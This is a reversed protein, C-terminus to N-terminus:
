DLFAEFSFTELNMRQIEDGLCLLHKGDCSMRLGQVSDDVQVRRVVKATQADIVSVKHDDLDLAYLFRGDPRAVLFENGLILNPTFVFTGLTAASFLVSTAIRGALVGTKEGAGMTTVIAEVQLEKLDLLAVKHHSRGNKGSILVAAHDEGLAITEGPFGDLFASAGGEDGKDARGPQSFQIRRDGLEGTESLSRMEQNGLVWPEQNPGLRVLRTPQGTLAHSVTTGKEIDVVLLSAATHKDGEIAAFLLKQDRSQMTARPRGALKITFVPLASRGSFVLFQDNVPKPEHFTEQFAAYRVILDGQDTAALFQFGPSLWKAHISDLVGARFGELWHYTAVVENSGTDVVSIAPQGEPPPPKRVFLYGFGTTFCFLRRGDHSLFLAAGGAGVKIEKDVRKTTLNLASILHESEKENNVVYLTNNSGSYIFEGPNKAVPIPALFRGEPGMMHVSPKKGGLVQATSCGVAGVAVVQPFALRGSCLVAATVLFANRSGV